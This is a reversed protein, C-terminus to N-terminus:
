VHLHPSIFLLSSIQCFQALPSTTDMRQKLGAAETTSQADELVWLKCATINLQSDQWCGGNSDLCENTEIDRYQVNNIVLTPLITVDGRTGHGIQLLQETRLVDNDADAEPDGMCKSINDSPLGLADSSFFKKM